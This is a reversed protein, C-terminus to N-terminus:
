PKALYRRSPRGFADKMPKVPVGISFSSTFVGATNPSVDVNVVDATRDLIKRGHRDVVLATQRPDFEVVVLPGLDVGLDGIERLVLGLGLLFPELPFPGADLGQDARLFADREDGIVKNFVELGPQNTKIAFPHDDAHAATDAHREVVGDHFQTGLPVAIVILCPAILTTM